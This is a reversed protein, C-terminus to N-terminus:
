YEYKEEKEEKECDCEVEKYDAKCHEDCDLEVGKLCKGKKRCIECIKVHDVRNAWIEIAYKKHPCLPGFVFEGNEDTFTHTVPKRKEYGTEKKDVEILKIVADCIPDGYSDKLIGFIVDRNDEPLRIDLDFQKGGAIFGEIELKEKKEFDM